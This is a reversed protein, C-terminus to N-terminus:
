KSIILKQTGLNFGNEVNQVFYIGNSFAAVSINIQSSNVKQSWLVKGSIDTINIQSGISLNNIMVLDKAPNPYITSANFKTDKIGTSTSDGGTVTITGTATVAAGCGGSTTVTYNFVGGETPTGYIDFESYYLDYFGTVGAPLGTVSANTASGIELSFSSIPTNVAVTQSSGADITNGGSVTITGYSPTGPGCNGTPTVTYNFVGVATPTGSLQFLSGVMSGSVGAPLGTATASTGNTLAIAASTIATNVCVTLYPAQSISAGNTVVIEFSSANIDCAALPFIYVNSYGVATPTGTITIENNAYVATLGAPLYYVNDIGTLDTTSIVIPTIPANICLTITDTPVIVEPQILSVQTIRSTDYCGSLSSYHNFTYTGAAGIYEGEYYSNYCLSLTDQVIVPAPCYKFMRANSTIARGYNQYFDMAVFNGSSPITDVTWTTGGNTTSCMTGADGCAFGTNADIFHIDNLAAVTNSTQAVWSTGANTTKFILGQTSALWGTNSDIFFFSFNNVNTFGPLTQSTWTTGSNTTKYIVNSQDMLFGTTANLFYITRYYPSGPNSAVAAWSVGGNTTKYIAAGQLFYGNLSDVFQIKHAAGNISYQKAWTAGGDASHIVFTTDKIADTWIGWGSTATPFTFSAVGQNTGYTGSFPSTFVNTYGNNINSAAFSNVKYIFARPDSTVGLKGSYYFQTPSVIHLDTAYPNWGGLFSTLSWSQAQVTQTLLSSLIFAALLIKKMITKKTSAFSRFFFKM